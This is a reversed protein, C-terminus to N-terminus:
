TIAMLDEMCAYHTRIVLVAVHMYLKVKAMFDHGYVIVVQKVCVCMCVRM